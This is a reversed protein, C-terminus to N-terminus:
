KGDNLLNKKKENYYLSDSLSTQLLSTELSMKWATTKIIVISPVHRAHLTSLNSAESEYHLESRKHKKTSTCERAERISLKTNNYFLIFRFGSSPENKVGAMFLTQYFGCSVEKLFPESWTKFPSYFHKGKFSCKEFRVLWYLLAISTICPWINMENIQMKLPETTVYPKANKGGWM